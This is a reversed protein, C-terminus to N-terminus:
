NPSLDLFMNDILRVEGVYGATCLILQDASEVYDVPNLNLKDVLEFYELRVGPETAFLQAVSKKVDVIKAGKNLAERAIILARYFITAQQRQEPTLRQNRSSMALGDGERKTAISHLNLGFQLEGVLRRIITFQQWDKQGFYANDPEVINFLKSVVLAVGSFHGPRFAGEMVKDLHGFDFSIISKEPYMQENTPYFIVNCGVKELLVADKEFTRPYKALDDPNNFQTPNVYISCVNVANQM